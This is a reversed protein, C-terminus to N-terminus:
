WAAILSLQQDRAGFLIPEGCRVAMTIDWVQRGRRNMYAHFRVHEEDIVAISLRLTRREDLPLVVVDGSEVVTDLLPWAPQVMLPVPPVSEITLVIPPHEPPAVTTSRESCRLPHLGVLGLALMRDNM